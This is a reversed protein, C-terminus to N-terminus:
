KTKVKYDRLFALLTSVIWYLECVKMEDAIKKSKDTAKVVFDLKQETLFTFREQCSEIKANLESVL